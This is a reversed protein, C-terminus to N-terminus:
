DKLTRLYAILARVDSDSFKKAFAPMEGKVGGCIIAQLRADSKLLGHLNPGEDGRADDGHCQACYHDFLKYGESTSAKAELVDRKRMQITKASQDHHLERAKGSQLFPSLGAILGLLGVSSCVALVTAKTQITM